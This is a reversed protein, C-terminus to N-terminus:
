YFKKAMKLVAHTYLAYSGLAEVYKSFRSKNTGRKVAELVASELYAVQDTDIGQRALIAHLLLEDLLQLATRHKKILGTVTSVLPAKKSSAM